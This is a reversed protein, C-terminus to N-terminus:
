LVVNFMEPPLLVQGGNDWKIIYEWSKTGPCFKRGAITGPRGESPGTGNWKVKTGDELYDLV